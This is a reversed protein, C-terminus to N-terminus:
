FYFYALLSCTDHLLFLNIVFTGAQLVGHSHLLCLCQWLIVKGDWPEAPCSQFDYLNLINHFTVIYIFSFSFIIVYFFFNAYPGSFFFFMDSSLFATNNSPLQLRGLWTLFCSKQFFYLFQFLLFSFFQMFLNENLFFISIEQALKRLTQSNISVQTKMM